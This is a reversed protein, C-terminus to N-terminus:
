FSPPTNVWVVVTKVDGPNTWRHPRTSQFTMADNPGLRYTHLEDLTLELEGQLIYLFEEGEHSYSEVSGSGPMVSILISQLATDTAYLNEFVVGPTEMELPRREHPRVVLDRGPEKSDLLKPVTTDLAAALRQLTGVSPASLGREIASISSPSIESAAALARLSMGKGKRLQQIRDHVRKRRPRSEDPVEVDDAIMLRVGAPNLGEGILDRVRILKRLDEPSFVRYGSETRKPSILGEQEWARLVTQSVGLIQAVQGIYM